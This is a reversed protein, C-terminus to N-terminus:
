AGVEGASKTYSIQVIVWDLLNTSSESRIRIAGNNIYASFFSSTSYFRTLPFLENAVRIMGNIEIVADIEPFNEIEGLTTTVAGSGTTVNKFMFVRRYIRRGDIWRGGTDVEGERYNFGGEIGSYFLAPYYCQFSPKEETAQSFGGFCVGGNPAGSLHVNAFARPLPQSLTAPEFEDGFCLMLDWDTGKSFTQSVLTATEADLASRILSSLDINAYDGGAASNRYLLRLGLRGLGRNDALALKLGALINEGEDDTEYGSSRVAEFKTIAPKYWADLMTIPFAVDARSGSDGLQVGFASLVTGRSFSREGFSLVTKVAVAKATGRSISFNADRYAIIEGHGPIALWVRLGGSGISDGSEAKVTFSLSVEDGPALMAPSVSFNTIKM